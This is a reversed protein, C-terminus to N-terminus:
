FKKFACKVSASPIFNSYVIFNSNTVEYSFDANEGSVLFHGTADASFPNSSTHKYHSGDATWANTAITYNTKEAAIATNRAAIETAEAAEARAQEAAIASTLVGEASTARSAEASISANAASVANTRNTIETALNAAITSAGSTM